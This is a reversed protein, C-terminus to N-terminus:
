VSAMSSDQCARLPLFSSLNTTPYLEPDAKSHVDLLVQIPSTNMFPGLANKLQEFSGTTARPLFFCAADHALEIVDRHAHLNGLSTIRCLAYLLQTLDAPMTFAQEHVLSISILARIWDVFDDSTPLSQDDIAKVASKLHGAIPRGIESEEFVPISSRTANIIAAHTSPTTTWASRFAHTLAAEDEGSFLLAKESMIRLQKGARVDIHSVLQPWLSYQREISAIIHKSCSRLVLQSDSHADDETAAALALQFTPLSCADVFEFLQSILLGRSDARWVSNDTSDQPLCQPTPPRGPLKMMATLFHRVNDRVFTVNMTFVSKLEDHMLKPSRALLRQFMAIFPPSTCLSHLDSDHYPESRLKLCAKLLRILSPGHSRLLHQRWTQKSWRNHADLSHLNDHEEAQSTLSGVSAEEAEFFFFHLLNLVAKPEATRSADNLGGNNAQEACELLASISMSGSRLLLTLARSLPQHELATVQLRVWDALAAAFSEENATRLATLNTKITDVQPESIQKVHCLHALITSLATSLDPDALKPGNALIRDLDSRGDEATDIQMESLPTCAAFGNDCFEIERNLHQELKATTEYWYSTRLFFQCLDKAPPNNVSRLATYRSFLTHWLKTHFGLAAFKEDQTEASLAILELGELSCRAVLAILVDMLVFYDDLDELLIVVVKVFHLPLSTDAGDKRRALLSLLSSCLSKSLEFRNKFTIKQLHDQISHDELDTDSHESRSKFQAAIKQKVQVIQAESDTDVIKSQTTQTHLDVVSAPADSTSVQAMLLLLFPMDPTELSPQTSSLGRLYATQDFHSSRGMEACFRALGTPSITKGQRLRTLAFSISEHSIVGQQEHWQRILRCALHLRHGGARYRSTAWGILCAVLEHLNPMLARLSSSLAALDLHPLATDLTQIVGQTPHMANPDSGVIWPSLRDNVSIIRQMDDLASPEKATTRKQIFLYGVQRWIKPFVFHKVHSSALRQVFDDLRTHMEKLVDNTSNSESLELFIDASTLFGLRHFRVEHLRSTFAAALRQGYRKSSTLKAQHTQAALLMLPLRNLSCKELRNLVWDLYHKRDLLGEAYLRASLRTSIFTLDAYPM